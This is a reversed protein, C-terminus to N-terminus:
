KARRKKDAPAAFESPLVKGLFDAAKQINKRREPQALVKRVARKFEQRQWTREELM